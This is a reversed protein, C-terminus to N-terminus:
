ALAECVAELAKGELPRDLGSDVIVEFSILEGTATDVTIIRIERVTNAAVVGQGPIVVRLALVGTAQVTFITTDGDEVAALDKDVGVDPFGLTGGPGILEHKLRFRFLALGDRGISSKITGTITHRVEFGCADTLFDDVFDEDVEEVDFKDQNAAQTQVKAKGKRRRRKAAAEGVGLGAVAALLALAGRRSASTSFGRVVGDFREEDVSSGEVAIRRLGCIASIVDTSLVYRPSRNASEAATAASSVHRNPPIQM